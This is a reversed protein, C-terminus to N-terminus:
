VGMLLRRLTQLRHYMITCSIRNQQLFHLVMRLTPSSVMATTGGPVNNIEDVQYFAGENGERVFLQIKEVDYPSHKVFVNIQNYFDDQGPTTFGRRLQNQSVTLSTYPSLASHEGDEYVYKYAFQFVGDQINNEKLAPNNVINYAPPDLPPRKAVSLVALKEDDTGTLLQPYGNVLAKTTNIKKPATRGDNFYLLVDGNINNYINGKVFGNETFDLVSDKIVRQAQNAGVSYRYISHDDNSNWVFYFIFGLQEDSISGIVKNTGAPLSKDLDVAANGYANKLVLGDGDNDTSVRINVADTMEVSKILREDDDKNLYQPTIKQVAM